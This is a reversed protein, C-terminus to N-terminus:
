AVDHEERTLDGVEIEEPLFRRVRPDHTLHALESTHDGDVSPPNAQRIAERRTVEWGWLDHHVVDERDHTVDSRVSDEEEPHVLTALDANEESRAM